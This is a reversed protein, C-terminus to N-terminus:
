TKRRITKIGARSSDLTLAGQVVPVGACSSGPQQHHRFRPFGRLQTRPIRCISRAVAVPFMLRAELGPLIWSRIFVISITSILSIRLLFRHFNTSIRSTLKSSYLFSGRHPGRFILLLFLFRLSQVRSNSAHRFYLSARPVSCVLSPGVARSRTLLGPASGQTKLNGTRPSQTSRHGTLDHSLYAPRM